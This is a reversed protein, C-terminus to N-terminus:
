TRLAELPEVKAARLAPYLGALLGTLWGVAPALGVTSPNIVATWERVLAVAAVVGGGVGIATGALGGLTGPVTSQTLLQAAIHRPGAGLAGRRLGIEGRRELVAVGIVGGTSLLAAAVAM